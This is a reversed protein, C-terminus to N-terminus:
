KELNLYILREQARTYAVYALNENQVKEWDRLERKTSMNKDHDLLYVNPWERGKSRHYSCLVTVGQVQDSFMETIFDIVNVVHTGGQETVAKCIEVLSDCRDKVEEVKAENRKAMAKAIERDRYADLRQLLLNITKATKWRRCLAILGDGIARGEVKCPIKARLLKYAMSLLPANKRCLIADNKTFTEPVKTLTLVEGDTATDAYQIDPVITQALKVVEKPCRWTISLPYCKMQMDSILNEMAKADAGSFGYIAQRDDGVIFLRGTRPKVFKKALAQRIPSLDQAEDVFLFDSPFGVRLKHILPFLVMDDFDVVTTLQNSKQYIEIAAHVIEDVAGEDEFDDMGYHEMLEYWVTYERTPLNHFYGVGAGKAYSVLQAISTAFKEFVNGDEQHEEILKIVKKDDIHERGLKFAYKVVGWGLSHMTSAQIRKWDDHGAKKLKETIEVEIAKNYAAITTKSGPVHKMILDVAGLITSTKGCGARAILAGNARDNLVFEFFDKQQPTAKFGM